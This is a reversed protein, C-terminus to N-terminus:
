GCSARARSARRPRGAVAGRVEEVARLELEVAALEDSHYDASAFDFAATWIRNSYPFRLTLTEMTGVKMRPALVTVTSPGVDQVAVKYGDGDQTEASVEARGRLSELAERSEDLSVGAGHVPLPLRDAACLDGQDHAPQDVPDPEVDIRGQRQHGLRASRRVAAPGGGRGTPKDNVYFNGAANRLVAAAREVARRDTAFISGTLAYASTSECVELTEAVKGEDYVHVTVVPGFLERQMTDYRPDTATIVTPRVFYGTSDDCEGGVLVDADPSARAAAIADVQTQYSSRDIVAGMFNRFDRVDGVAIQDVEAELRERIAPWLNSPAYVRSCASCKQGQYEFAGRIIATAVAEPDASPDAFIFDKGGTEGVIRPYSRYRGINQGITQWMGQFVPTSGTFHVGALDPHALVPNGIESGSGLVLNIVGPPMGAAELLKILYHAAVVATSAPKLIVTNGMMAPATPLNGAIATFNFPAVAFVFGELPRYDIRNWVGPSSIPQEAMLREAYAVNFRWFDILECASDIEAQYVTKSQGLMTAANLTQRWPGALLDAARLFVAARAEFPMAGWERGAEAAADIAQAVEAAGGRHYTALVHGHDHPMVAEATNGTRVERGGIVLPIEIQESAMTALRAKLEAREPSGPSYNRVPENFGAPVSASAGSM